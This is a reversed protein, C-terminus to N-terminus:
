EPSSNLEILYEDPDRIFAITEHGIVFPEQEIRVGRKRLQEVAQNVDGVGIAIHLRDDAQRGFSQEQWLEIGPPMGTPSVQVIIVGDPREYRVVTKWHLEGVYFALSREMDSVDLKVHHFFAGKM